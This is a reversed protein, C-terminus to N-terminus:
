GKMENIKECMEDADEGTKVRILMPVVSTDDAKPDLPPNPVCMLTVNNKGQRKVPMASNLLINLLINGLNTDARIILQTKGDVPKLFMNGVGKETWKGEKQYFLKCRKTYVAGDEKIEKVEAKPPVYEEDDGTAGEQSQAQSSGTENGGGPPKSAFSFPKLGAGFVSGGTAANGFTFGTSLKGESGLSKGNQSKDTSSPPQGFTFSSSPKAPETSAKNEKPENSTLAPSPKTSDQSTSKMMTAGFKFGGSSSVDPAKMISPTKLDDSTSTKSGQDSESEAESDQPFKKEIESLHKEYDKFIPTLICYPNGDVHDKIWKSVSKNLNKLERLYESSKVKSGGNSTNPASTSSVAASLGSTAPTASMNSSPKLDFSPVTTSGNSKSSALGGFSTSTPQSGFSFSPAKSDSKTAGFGAFGKFAGGESGGTAGPVRRKTTKITRKKLDEVSAQKFIGAEETDEEDDWNDHTLQNGANCKAM